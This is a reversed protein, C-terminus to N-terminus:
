TKVGTGVAREIQRVHRDSHHALMLLWQYGDLAGYAPHPFTHRRLPEDTERVYEITRSRRGLFAAAAEPGDRYARRPQLSPAAKGRWSDDQMSSVIEADRAAAEAADLAGEPESLAKRALRPMVEESVALHEALEAPSWKGPAPQREWDEPTLSATAARFRAESAALVDLLAKREAASITM